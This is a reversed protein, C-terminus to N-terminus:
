NHQIAYLRTVCQQLFQLAAGETEENQMQLIVEEM